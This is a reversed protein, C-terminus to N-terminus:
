VAYGRQRMDAAISEMIARAIGIAERAEAETADALHEPYRADVQWGGLWALEPFARVVSWEEPLLDRLADLDHSRPYDRRSVILAAKLAKEACQAAFGCPLRPPVDVDVVLVEGARLDDRAFAIWRLPDTSDPV